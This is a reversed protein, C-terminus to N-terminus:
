TTVTALSCSPLLWPPERHCDIFSGQLEHRVARPDTETGAPGGLSEDLGKAVADPLSPQADM